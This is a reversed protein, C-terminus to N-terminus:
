FTIVLGIRKKIRYKTNLPDLSRIESLKNKAESLERFMMARVPHWGTEKSFYQVEYWTNHAEYERRLDARKKLVEQRERSVRRKEENALRAKEAAEYNLRKQERNPDLIEAFIANRGHPIRFDGLVDKDFVVENGIWSYKKYQKPKAFGYHGIFYEVGDDAKVIVWRRGDYAKKVIVGRM